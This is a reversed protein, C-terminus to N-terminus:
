HVMVDKATQYFENLEEQPLTDILHQLFALVSMPGYYPINKKNSINIEPPQPGYFIGEFVMIYKRRPKIKNLSYSIDDIKGNLVNQNKKIPKEFIKNLVKRLLFSPSPKKRYIEKIIGEPSPDEGLLNCIAQNYGLFNLTIKKINNNYSDYIVSVKDEEYFKIVVEGKKKRFINKLFGM